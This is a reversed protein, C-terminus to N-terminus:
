RNHGSVETIKLLKDLREEFSGNIVHVNRLEPLTWRIMEDIYTTLGDVKVFKEIPIYAIADYYENCYSVAFKRFMELGERTFCEHYSMYAWCDVTIRDAILDPTNNHKVEWVFRRALLELQFSSWDTVWGKEQKMDRAIEPIVIYDPKKEVFAELLTTKYSTNSFEKM